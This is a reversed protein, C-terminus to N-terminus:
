YGARGCTIGGNNSCSINGDEDISLTYGGTRTISAVANANNAVTPMAFNSPPTPFDIDLVALSATYTGNEFEFAKQAGLLATLL